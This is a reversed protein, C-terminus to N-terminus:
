LVQAALAVSGFVRFLVGLPWFFSGYYNWVGPNDWLDDRELHHLEVIRLYGLDDLFLSGDRFFFIGLAVSLRAALAILFTTRVPHASLADVAKACKGKM